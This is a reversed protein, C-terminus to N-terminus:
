KEQNSATMANKANKANKQQPQPVVKAAVALFLAFGFLLGKVFDV